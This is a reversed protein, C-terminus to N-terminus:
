HRARFYMPGAFCRSVSQDEASAATRGLAPTVATHQRRDQNWLHNATTPRSLQLRFPGSIWKQAAPVRGSRVYTARNANDISQLIPCGDPRRHATRTWCGLVQRQDLSHWGHQGSDAMKGGEVSPSRRSSALRGSWFALVSCALKNLPHEAPNGTRSPIGVQSGTDIVVRTLM